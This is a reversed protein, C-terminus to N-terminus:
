LRVSHVEPVLVPCTSEHSFGPDQTFVPPDGEDEDEDEEEDMLPIAAVVVVSAAM